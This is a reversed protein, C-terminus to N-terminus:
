FETSRKHTFHWILIRFIVAYITMRSSDSCLPRLVHILKNHILLLDESSSPLVIVHYLCLIICSHFSCSTKSIVYCRNHSWSLAILFFSHSESKPSSFVFLRFWADDDINSYWTITPYTLFFDFLNFFILIQLSLQFPKPQQFLILNYWQNYSSQPANALAETSPHVYKTNFQINSHYLFWDQQSCSPYEPFDEVHLTFADKQGNAVLQLEGLLFM